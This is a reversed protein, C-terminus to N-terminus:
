EALFAIARLYTLMIPPSGLTEVTFAITNTLVLLYSASARETTSGLNALVSFILLRTYFAATRLYALM